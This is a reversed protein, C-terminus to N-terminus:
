IKGAHDQVDTLSSVLTSTVVQLLVPKYVHYNDLKAPTAQGVFLKAQVPASFGYELDFTLSKKEFLACM